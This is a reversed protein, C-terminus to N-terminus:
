SYVQCRSECSREIKWGVVEKTALRNYFQITQETTKTMKSVGVLYGM